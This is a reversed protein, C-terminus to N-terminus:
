ESMRKVIGSNRLGQREGSRDRAGRLCHLSGDLARHAPGRPTKGYRGGTHGKAEETSTSHDIVWIENLRCSSLLIQDLEENYDIANIHTFDVSILPFLPNSLTFRGNSNIDILEPHEAVM